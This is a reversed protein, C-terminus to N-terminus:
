IKLEKLHNDILKSLRDACKRYVVQGQGIPDSINGNPDLCKTKNKAEPVLSLVERLHTKTMVWIQDAQQINEITLAKSRHRRIDAGMEATAKIAEKTAAVGILGMTGSSHVKFGRAVLESPKCRLKKALKAKLLGEAMPSRCSNGTCVFMVRMQAMNAIIRKDLVGQRIIKYQGRKVEVITSARGYRCSGGDLVLDLQGNLEALVEDATTAPTQGKRNASPAVVGFRSQELISRAVPEEPCRIGITRRYYLNKVQSTSMKKMAAPNKKGLHFILTLPGPWGRQLLGIGPWSLEGVYDTVQQKDAIVLSFPQNKPREKLERLKKIAKENSANAAIGYVTETPFGVLGGNRLVQAAEKAAQSISKGRGPKIVQTQM